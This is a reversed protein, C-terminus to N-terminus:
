RKTTKLAHILWATALVGGAAGLALVFTRNWGTLESLNM